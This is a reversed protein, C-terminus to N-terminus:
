LVLPHKCAASRASNVAALVASLRRAIVGWELHAPFPAVQPQDLQHRIAEAMDAPDPRCLSQPAARFIERHGAIDTAVVPKACSLYEAIKCAGCMANFGDDAYPIAVLDCAAILAPVGEQEVEGLYRIWPEDIPVRSIPGALLLRLNPRTARLQRCAEILLPGRAPQISGFYGVVPIDPEIGLRSRAETQDMPAFRQQDVGNEVLLSAANLPALREM